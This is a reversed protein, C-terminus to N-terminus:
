NKELKDRCRITVANAANLLAFGTLGGIVGVIGAALLQTFFTFLVDGDLREFPFHSGTINLNALIYGLELLIAGIASAAVVNEIKRMSRLLLPLFFGVPGAYVFTLFWLLPMYLASKSFPGPRGTFLLCLLFLAGYVVIGALFNPLSRYTEVEAALKNKLALRSGFDRMAKEEAAEGDLGQRRYEEALLELHDRLEAALEAKERRTIRLPGVIEAIYGDIRGRAKSEVGSM